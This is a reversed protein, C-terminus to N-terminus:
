ISVWIHDLQIVNQEILELNGRRTLLENLFKLDRRVEKQNKFLQNYYSNLLLIDQKEIESFLFYKELIIKKYLKLGEYKTNIKYHCLIFLINLNLFNKTSIPTNENILSLLDLILDTKGDDSVIVKNKIESLNM